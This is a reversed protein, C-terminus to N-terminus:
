IQCEERRQRIEMLELLIGKARKCGDWCNGEPCPLGQGLFRLTHPCQCKYDGYAGLLREIRALRSGWKM